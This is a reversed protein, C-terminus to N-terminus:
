KRQIRPTDATFKSNLNTTQSQCKKHKTSAHENGTCSEQRSCKWHLICPKQLHLGESINWLRSQHINVFAALPYITKINLTLSGLGHLHHCKARKFCSYSKALWYLTVNWFFQIEMLVMTLVDVRDNYNKHPFCFAYQIYSFSQDLYESKAYLYLASPHCQIRGTRFSWSCATIFKWTKNFTLNASHSYAEWFSQKTSHTVNQPQNNVM